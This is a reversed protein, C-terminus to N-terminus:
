DRLTQWRLVEKIKAEYYLRLATKDLQRAPTRSRARLLDFKDGLRAKFWEVHELPHATFYAHCGLCLAAANDEDWRVSKKARGIFHSCQIEKYDVKGQLCRECGGVEAMARLRIYKSFLQDLPDIRIKM